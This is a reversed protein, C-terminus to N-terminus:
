RSGSARSYEAPAFVVLVSLRAEIDHFRHPIGAAVFAISGATVAVDDDGMALKARGSLVVYVEDESHPQQRDVAGADLVYLGGTMDPVRLFELYSGATAARAAELADAHWAATRPAEGAAADTVPVEEISRVYRQEAPRDAPALLINRHGM